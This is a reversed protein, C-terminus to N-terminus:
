HGHTKLCAVEALGKLVDQELTTEPACNVNVWGALTKGDFLPRFGDAEDTRASPSFGLAAALLLAPLLSRANMPNLFGCALPSALGRNPEKM